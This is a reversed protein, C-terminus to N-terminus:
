PAAASAGLAPPGPPAASRLHALESTTRELRRALSRAVEIGMEPFERMLQLMPERGFCLTRLDGRAVVTATRSSECLMAIEGFVEKEQLHAVVTARGAVDVVVDAGGSLIVYASNGSDGQRVVPEGDMFRREEAIFALLRLRARDVGRFMPAGQLAKVEEDFNM